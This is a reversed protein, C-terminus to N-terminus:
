GLLKLYLEEFKKVMTKLSLEDLFIKRSAEGYQNRRSPNRMLTLLSAALVEPDAPQVLLGNRGHQVMYKVDGVDSAVIPRGAATASIVALPFTEGGRDLSPQTYIDFASLLASLDTRYGCFLIYEKLGLQATKEELSSRLEGDGVIVFKVAPVLPVLRQAADILHTYGKFDVLKGISGIVIGDRPINWERRLEERAANSFQVEDEPIADHIVTIKKAPIHDEQQLIESTSYGDPVFHDIFYRNRVAHTINHRISFCSHVSAVSKCGLAWTAFAGITRDFYANSHLVDPHENKLARVLQKVAVFEKGNKGYLIEFTKFGLARSADALDSEVLPCIIIEHGLDRLGRALFIVFNEGGSIDKADNTLAIKM